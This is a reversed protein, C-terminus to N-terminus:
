TASGDDADETHLPSEGMHWGAPYVPRHYAEHEGGPAAASAGGSARRRKAPYVRRVPKLPADLHPEEETEGSGPVAAAAGTVVTGDAYLWQRVPAADETEEPEDGNDERDRRFFSRWVRYPQWRILYVLLDVLLGGLCLLVTLPVWNELVWGMWAGADASTVLQWLWSAINRLWGLLVSFLANAFSGM